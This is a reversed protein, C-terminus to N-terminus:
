KIVGGGLCVGKAYFVAYQGPTVARQPKKFQLTLLGVDGAFPRVVVQELKQRHRLRVKCKLPFLPNQRNIWHTQQIEIQQRYLLPDDEFGVLLENTLFNKDLVYLPRTEGKQSKAQVGLQRQGITYFSLGDHQGIVEHTSHLIIAGPNEKIKQKLFDKMPVEGIFCIGMSEEKEAVPLKFKKALRRVHPKTYNGIPFMVKQLQEQNLQHLFYTQDKNKDKAELLLVEGRHLSRNKQGIRAYHGTALYDFGLEAARTLWSGFKIFKNCLVDPNPTRGAAYEQYM